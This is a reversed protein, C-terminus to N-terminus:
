LGGTRGGESRGAQAAVRKGGTTTPPTSAATSPSSAEAWLLSRGTKRAVGWKTMNYPIGLVVPKVLDRVAKHTAKTAGAPALGCRIAFGIHPDRRYYEIM